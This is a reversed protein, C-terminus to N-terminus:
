CENTLDSEKQEPIEGGLQRVKVHDSQTNMQSIARIKAGLDGSRDPSYRVNLELVSPTGSSARNANGVLIVTKGQPKVMVWRTSLKYYFPNDSKNSISIYRDNCSINGAKDSVHAIVGAQLYLEPNVYCSISVTSEKQQAFAATYLLPLLLLIYKVIHKCHM